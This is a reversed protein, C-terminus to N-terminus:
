RYVWFHDLREKLGYQQLIYAQRDEDKAKEAEEIVESLRIARDFVDVTLGLQRKIAKEFTTDQNEGNRLSFLITGSQSYTRIQEGGLQQVLQAVNMVEGAVSGRGELGGVISLEYDFIREKNRTDRNAQVKLLEDRLGALRNVAPVGYQIKDAMVDVTDGPRFFNLVLSKHSYELKDGQLEIRQANTLGQVEVTFFDINPDVDIWTAVGWLSQGVELRQQQMALSDYLPPTVREEQAIRAIANPIVQDLLRQEKGPNLASKLGKSELIFNPLFRVSKVAGVAPKGYVANDFKDTEITPIYDNGRYTVRYLLYWVVKKETGTSTAVDVQIMRVPKFAFELCHVPGRFVVKKSMELLTDSEPATNPQWRLEPHQVVLPLDVPGQFTEGFEVSPRIINLADAALKRESQALAPLSICYAVFAFASSTSIFNVLGARHSM